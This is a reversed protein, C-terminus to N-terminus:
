PIGFFSNFYKADIDSCLVVAVLLKMNLSLLLFMLVLYSFHEFNVIADKNNVKFM